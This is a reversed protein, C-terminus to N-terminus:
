GDINLFIFDHNLYFDCLESPLLILLFSFASAFINRPRTVNIKMREVNGAQIAVQQHIKLHPNSIDHFQSFDLINRFVAFMWGTLFFPNDNFAIFQSGARCPDNDTIM